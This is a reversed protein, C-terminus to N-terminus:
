LTPGAAETAPRCRTPDRIVAIRPGARKAWAFVMFPGAHPARRDPVVLALSLHCLGDWCSAVYGGAGVAQVLQPWSILAPDILDRGGQGLHLLVSHCVREPPSLM